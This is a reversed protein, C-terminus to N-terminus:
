FDQGAQKITGKGALLYRLLSAGLKDLLVNLFGGKQKKVENKITESVGKTLLGSAELSKVIKIIDNRQENSIILTAVGSELMEKHIDADTAATAAILGLPILANKALPELVLEILPLFFDTNLLLGLFRGLLEGSQEIKHM